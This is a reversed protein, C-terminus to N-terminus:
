NKDGNVLALWEPTVGNKVWLWRRVVGTLPETWEGREECSAPSAASSLQSRSLVLRRRKPVSNEQSLFKWRKTKRFRARFLKHTSRLRGLFKGQFTEPHNLIPRPEISSRSDSFWQWRACPNLISKSCGVTPSTGGREDFFQVHAGDVHSLTLGVPEATVNQDGGLKGQSQWILTKTTGKPDM